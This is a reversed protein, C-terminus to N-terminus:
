KQNPSQNYKTQLNILKQQKKQYEESTEKEKDQTLKNLKKRRSELEKEM